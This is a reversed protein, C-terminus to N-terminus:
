HLVKSVQKPPPVIIKVDDKMQQLGQNIAELMNGIYEQPNALLDRAVIDVTVVNDGKALFGFRIVGKDKGQGQAVLCGNIRVMGRENNRPKPMNGARFPEIADALAQFWKRSATNMKRIDISM